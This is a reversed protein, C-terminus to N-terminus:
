AVIAQLSSYDNPHGVGSIGSGSASAIFGADRKKSGEVVM